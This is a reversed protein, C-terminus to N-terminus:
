LLLEKIDIQLALRVVLESGMRRALVLNALFNSSSRQRIVGFAKMM